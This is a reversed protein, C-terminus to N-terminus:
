DTGDFVALGHDTGIWKDGNGDIAISNIRNDPLDSNSTDYLIWNTGNFLVLGANTGIWKNKNEEIAISIIENDPLGSNSTDYYTLKGSLKELEILGSSSGAWILNGDHEICYIENQSKDYIIWEPNQSFVSFSTFFITASYFFILKIKM